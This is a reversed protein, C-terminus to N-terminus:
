QQQQQKKQENKTRRKRRWFQMCPIRLFRCCNGAFPLNPCNTHKEVRNRRRRWDKTLLEGPTPRLRYVLASNQWILPGWAFSRSSECKKKKYDSARERTYLEVVLDIIIIVVFHSWSRLLYFLRVLIFCCMFRCLVWPSSPPPQATECHPFCYFHTFSLSALSSSKTCSLTTRTDLQQQQQQHKNRSWKLRRQQQQMWRGTDKTRQM